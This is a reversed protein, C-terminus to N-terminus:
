NGRRIGRDWNCKFCSPVLNREDNNLKDDDLHDVCLETRRVTSLWEVERGCWHCLHTGPGIKDYLVKRHEKLAGNKATLPHGYQGTLVLYGDAAVYSGRAPEGTQAFTGRQTASIKDAWTIERGKLGRSIAAVHELGLTKGTHARSLIARTEPTREYHGCKTHRKCTCGPLCKAM